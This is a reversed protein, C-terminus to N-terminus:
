ADGGGKVDDIFATSFAIRPGFFPQETLTGGITNCTRKVLGPHPLSLARVAIGGGAAIRRCVEINEALKSM